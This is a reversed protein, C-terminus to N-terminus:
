QTQLVQRVERVLKANQEKEGKLLASKLISILVIAPVLAILAGLGSAIKRGPLFALPEIDNYGMYAGVALFVFLVSYTIRNGMKSSEDVELKLVDPIAKEWRLGVEAGIKSGQRIKIEHSWDNGAETFDGASVAYSSGFRTQLKSQIATASQRLTTNVSANEDIKYLIPQM